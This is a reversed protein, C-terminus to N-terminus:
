RVEPPSFIQHTHNLTTAKGNRITETERISQFRNHSCVAFLKPWSFIESHTYNYYHTCLVHLGIALRNVGLMFKTSNTVFQWLSVEPLLAVMWCVRGGSSTCNRTYSCPFWQNSSSPQVLGKRCYPRCPVQRADHQM